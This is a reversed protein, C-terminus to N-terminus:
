VCYGSSLCFVWPAQARCSPTCVCPHQSAPSPFLLPLCFIGLSVVPPVHMPPGVSTGHCSRAQSAATAMSM